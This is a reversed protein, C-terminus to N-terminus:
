HGQKNKLSNSVVFVGVMVLAAGAIQVPTLQESLFFYALFLTMIPGTASIIAAPSAGIRQIGANMLFAPVVTAVVAMLLALGYVEVPLSIIETDFDLGFHILTALCAITMAYATFRTAGLRKVMMGSGTLYIAFATASGFILASGLAVNADALTLEEAFVIIIGLYSVVLAVIEKGTIARGLFLASLLVVLTPYLLLILRELSASIYSLGLFDLYAALYFGVVGLGFLHAIDRRSLPAHNNNRELIFIALLFFPLSMLMRLSMLMIPSIYAGYGYAIKIIVAKTSFAFAAALVLLLGIFPQLDARITKSNM